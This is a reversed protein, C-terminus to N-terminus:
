LNQPTFGTIKAKVRNPIESRDNCCVAVSTRGFFIKNVRFLEPTKTQIVFVVFFFTILVAHFFVSSLCKDSSFFEVNCISLIPFWEGRSCEAISKALRKWNLIQLCINQQDLSVLHPSITSANRRDMRPSVINAVGARWRTVLYQSLFELQMSPFCYNSRRAWSISQPTWFRVFYNGVIFSHFTFAMSNTM